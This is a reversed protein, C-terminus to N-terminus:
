SSQQLLDKISQKFFQRIPQLAGLLVLVLTVAFAIAAAKPTIINAAFFTNLQVKVSNIAFFWLPLAILLPMIAIQSITAIIHHHQHGIALRVGINKKEFLLFAKIQYFIGLATIVMLLLCLAVAFLTLVKQNYDVKAITPQLLGIREFNIGEKNAIDNLRLTIAAENATDFLLYSQRYAQQQDFLMYIMPVHLDNRGFHPLDPVHALIRYTSTKGDISLQTNKWDNQLGLQTLASHNVILNNVTLEGFDSQKVGLLDFYNRSISIINIVTKPHNLNDSTVLRRQAKPQVFPTDAYAIQQKLTSDLQSHLSEFNFKQKAKKLDAQTSNATSFQAQQLNLVRKPQSQQSYMHLLLSIAVTTIVLASTFTATMNLNDLQKQIKSRGDSKQMKQQKLLNVMPLTSCGVIVLITITGCLLLTQADITISQEGFYSVFLQTQTMLQNTFLTLSLMLVIVLSCMPLSELALQKLLQQRNAGLAIKINFEAARAILRSFSVTLLNLICIAGLSLSLIMLLYWQLIINAKLTPALELGQTLYPPLGKAPTHLSSQSQQKIHNLQATLQPISIPTTVIAYFSPINKAMSMRFGKMAAAMASNSSGDTLSISILESFYGVPLWFAPQQKGIIDMSAPAINKIPLKLQYPGITIIQGIVNNRGGLHQLWFQQSIIVGSEIEDISHSFQAPLQLQKAMNPDFLVVTQEFTQGNITFTANDFGFYTYHQNVNTQSLKEIDNISTAILQGSINKKGVTLLPAQNGVWTPRDDFVALGISVMAGTVVAFLAFGITLSLWHLWHKQWKKLGYYIDEMHNNVVRNSLAGM